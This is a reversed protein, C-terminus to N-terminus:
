ADFFGTLRLPKLSKRRAFDRFFIKFFPKVFRSNQPISNLRWFRSLNEARHVKFILCHIK